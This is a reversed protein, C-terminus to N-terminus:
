LFGEMYDAQPIPTLTKVDIAKQIEDNDFDLIWHGQYKGKIPVIFSLEGRSFAAQPTVGTGKMLIDLAQIVAERDKAGLLQIGTLVKIFDMVVSDGGANAM